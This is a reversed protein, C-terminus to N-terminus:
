SKRLTLFLFKPCFKLLIKKGKGRHLPTYFNLDNFFQDYLRLKSRWKIELRWKVLDCVNTVMQYWKTGDPAMQRWRTVDPVM